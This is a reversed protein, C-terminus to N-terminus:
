VFTSLSASRNLPWLPGPIRALPLARRIRGRADRGAPGVLERGPEVAPPGVILRGRGAIQSKVRIVQVLGAAPAVMDKRGAPDTRKLALRCCTRCISRAAARHRVSHSRQYQRSIISLDFVGPFRSPRSANQTSPFSAAVEGIHSHPVHFPEFGILDIEAQVDPCGLGLGKRTTAPHDPRRWQYM